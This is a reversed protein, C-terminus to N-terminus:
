FKRSIIGYFSLKGVEEFIFVFGLLTKLDIFYKGTEPNWVYVIGDESGAFLFTGCPTM